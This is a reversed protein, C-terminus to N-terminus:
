SSQGADTAFSLRSVQEFHHDASGLLLRDVKARRWYLHADHEWTFGIGGHVQILTEAASDVAQAAQAKAASAALALEDHSHNAAWAAWWVLSRLQEVAVYEDVLRHKVAQYSGIKRGFAERLNAYEIGLELCRGATGLDEAALMVMASLRAREWEPVGSELPQANTLTVRALGRTPDIPEGADVEGDGIMVQGDRIALFRDAGVADIAIGDDIVAYATSGDALGTLLDENKSLLIAARVATVMSPSALHRGAQEAVVAADLVSQGIGGASEPVTIGYFGLEAIKQLGPSAPAGDALMARASAAGANASFFKGAMEAFEHQGEDLDFNM